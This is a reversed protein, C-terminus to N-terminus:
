DLGFETNLVARYRSILEAAAKGSLSLSKQATLVRWMSESLLHQHPRPLGKALRRVDAGLIGVGLINDLAQWDDSGPPPMNEILWEIREEESFALWQRVTENKVLKLQAESLRPTTQSRRRAFAEAMRRSRRGKTLEQTWM